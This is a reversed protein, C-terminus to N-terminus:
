IWYYYAIDARSDRSEPVRGLVSWTGNVPLLHDQNFTHMVQRVGAKTVLVVRGVMEETLPEKESVYHHLENSNNDEKVDNNKFRGDEGSPMNVPITNENDSMKGEKKVWNTELFDDMDDEGIDENAIVRSM